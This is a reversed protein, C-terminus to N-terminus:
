TFSPVNNGMRINSIEGGPPIYSQMYVTYRMQLDLFQVVVFELFCVYACMRVIKDDMFDASIMNLVSLNISLIGSNDHLLHCQM